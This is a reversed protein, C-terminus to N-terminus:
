AACALAIDSKFNAFAIKKAHQPDPIPDPLYAYADVFEGSPTHQMVHVFMVGKRKRWPFMYMSVVNGQYENPM